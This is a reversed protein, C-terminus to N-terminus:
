GEGENKEIHHHWEIEGDGELSHMFDVTEKLTALQSDTGIYLTDGFYGVAYGDDFGSLVEVSGVVERLTNIRVHEVLGDLYESLPVEQRGASGNLVVYSLDVDVCDCDEGCGGEGDEDDEDAMVALWHDHTLLRWFGDMFDFVYDHRGFDLRLPEWWGSSYFEIVSTKFEDDLLDHGMMFDVLTMEDIDAGDPWYAIVTDTAFREHWIPEPENLYDSLDFLTLQEGDQVVFMEDFPNPESPDRFFETETPQPSLCEDKHECSSCGGPIGDSHCPDFHNSNELNQIEDM